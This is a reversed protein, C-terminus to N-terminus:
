MSSRECNFLPGYARAVGLTLYQPKAQKQSCEEQLQPISLAQKKWPLEM